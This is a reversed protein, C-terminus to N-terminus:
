PGVHDLGVEALLRQFGQRGEATRGSQGQDEDIVLVRERSWGLTVASSDIVVNQVKGRSNDVVYATLEPSETVSPQGSRLRFWAVIM